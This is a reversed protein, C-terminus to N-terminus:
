GLYPHHGDGPGTITDAGERLWSELQDVSPLTGFRQQYISQLLIIAGSVIPAAFSTGSVSLLSQGDQPAVLNAGPAALDTAFKGGTASGLRQADALLRDSSDSATVSITEPLIATYGM